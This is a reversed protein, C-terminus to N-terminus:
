FSVRGALAKKIKPLNLSGGDTRMAAPDLALFRLLADADDCERRWQARLPAEIQAQEASYISRTKHEFRELAEAAEAIVPHWASRERLRQLLDANVSVGRSKLRLSANLWYRCNEALERWAKSAASLSPQVSRVVAQVHEETLQDLATADSEPIACNCMCCNMDDCAPKICRYPM